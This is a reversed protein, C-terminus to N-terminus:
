TPRECGPRTRAHQCDTMLDRRAREQKPSQRLSSELGLPLALGLGMGRTLLWRDARVRAIRPKLNDVQEQGLLMGM